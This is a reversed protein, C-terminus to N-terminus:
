DARAFGTIRADLAIIEALDAANAEAVTIGHQGDGGNARTTSKM